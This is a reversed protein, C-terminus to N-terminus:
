EEAAGCCKMVLKFLELEYDYTFPNEKEGRVMAAFSKIMADYRGFDPSRTYKTKVKGNEDKYREVCETYLPSVMGPRREEKPVSVELPKIEVTRRDTCIVLQRRDFGGTETGSMRVMSIGNPYELVACGFDETDIGGIGTAKNLPIVRTPAGQLLYVLDVLHCGLYFMMGGKFSGFWRRCDENDLRSMHAEISHIEGLEGSEFRAIIDSIIPNYRYMYGVHFVTKKAKVTEVLREFDSISQSGPKEMHLHKGADAVMQAYKLLHIEDTEVTVADITPDSLIEEVTMERYGEFTSLKKICTEREDEVIAYGVIEFLEPMSKLTSFIETSHSYRNVGIQAIRIRKM